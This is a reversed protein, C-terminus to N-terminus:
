QQESLTFNSIQTSVEVPVGELLTPKYKWLKVAEIPQPSSCRIVASSQSGANHRRRRYDRCIKVVGQIRAQKALAPYEPKPQSDALRRCTAGVIVRKARRRLCQIRRSRCSWLGGRWARQHGFIIGNEKPLTMMRVTM